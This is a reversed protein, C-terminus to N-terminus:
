PTAILFLAPFKFNQCCLPFGLQQCCKLPGVGTHILYNVETSLVQGGNARQKYHGALLPANPPGCLFLQDNSSPALVLRLINDSMHSFSSQSMVFHQDGSSQAESCHKHLTSGWVYQGYVKTVKSLQYLCQCISNQRM